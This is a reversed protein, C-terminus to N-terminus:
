VLVDGLTVARMDARLRPPVYWLRYSDYLNWLVRLAVRAPWETFVQNWYGSNPDQAMESGKYTVIPPLEARCGPPMEVAAFAEPVRPWRRYRLETLICEAEICHYPILLGTRARMRREWYKWEWFTQPKPVYRFEARLIPRQWCLLTADVTRRGEWDRIRLGLLNDVYAMEGTTRYAYADFGYSAPIARLPLHFRRHRASVQRAMGERALDVSRFRRTNLESDPLAIRNRWDYSFIAELPTRCPLVGGSVYKRILGDACVARSHMWPMRSLLTSNTELRGHWAEDYSPFALGEHRVYDGSRSRYGTVQEHWPSSSFPGNGPSDKRPILDRSMNSIPRYRFVVRSRHDNGASSAPDSEPLEITLATNNRKYLTKVVPGLGSVRTM